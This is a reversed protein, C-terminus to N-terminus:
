VQVFVSFPFTENCLFVIHSALVSLLQCPLQLIVLLLLLSKLFLLFLPVLHLLFVLLLFLLVLLFLLSVLVPPQQLM